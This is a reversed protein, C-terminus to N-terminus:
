QTVALAADYSALLQEALHHLIVEHQNFVRLRSALEDQNQLSLKGGSGIAKVDFYVLLAREEYSTYSVTAQSSEAYKAVEATNMHALAGTSLATQWATSRFIYFSPKIAAVSQFQDTQPKAASLQKLAQDIAGRTEELNKLELVLKSRNETIEERFSERSERVLHKEHMTERAGELGLAILIGITVILIHTGFEKM